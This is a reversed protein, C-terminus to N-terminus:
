DSVGEREIRAFPHDNDFYISFVEALGGPFVALVKKEWSKLMPNWPYLANMYEMFSWQLNLGSTNGAEPKFLATHLVLLPFMLWKLSPMSAAVLSPWIYVFRGLFDKDEKKGNTDYFGFNSALRKLISSPVETNGSLYCGAIAGQIDDHQQNGFQNDPTRALLGPEIMCSNVLKVFNKRPGIKYKRRLLMDYSTYTIGNGSDQWNLRPKVFGNKDTYLTIAEEYQQRTM